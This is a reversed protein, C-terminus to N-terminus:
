PIRTEFDDTLQTAASDFASTGTPAQVHVSVLYNRSNTWLHVVRDVYEIAEEPTDSLAGMFKQGSDDCLGAPLVSLSSVAWEGTLHEAYEAFAEQPDLTMPRQAPECTVTGAPIPATSTPVAGFDPHGFETTSSAPGTTATSEASRAPSAAATGTSDAVPTGDSAQTCAFLCVTVAVAAVVGRFGTM